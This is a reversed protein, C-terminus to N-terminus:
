WGNEQKQNIGSYGRLGGEREGAGGARGGGAQRHRERGAGAGQCPQPRRHAADQVHEEGGRDEHRSQAEGGCAARGNGLRGAAEARGAAAMPGGAAARPASQSLHSGTAALPTRQPKADAEASGPAGSHPAPPARPGPPPPGPLPPSAAGGRGPTTARSQTLAPPAAERRAM